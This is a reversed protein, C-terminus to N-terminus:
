HGHQLFYRARHRESNAEYGEPELSLAARASELRAMTRRHHLRLALGITGLGLLFAPLLGVVAGLTPAFTRLFETWFLAEYGM